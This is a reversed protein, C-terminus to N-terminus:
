RVAENDICRFVGGCYKCQITLTVDRIRILTLDAWLLLQGCISCDVGSTRATDVCCFRRRIRSRSPEPISMLEIKRAM